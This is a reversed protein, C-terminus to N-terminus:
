CLNHILVESTTLRKMLHHGIVLQLEEAQQMTWGLSILIDAITPSHVNYAGFIAATKMKKQKATELAALINPSKGSGSLVILLDRSKGLTELQRSFIEAYDYDNAIATLTAVDATLAHARVGGAILDNAIHVANAASGGNGCIYVHRARKVAQYLIEIM